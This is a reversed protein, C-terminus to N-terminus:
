PCEPANIRKCSSQFDNICVVLSIKITLLNEPLLVWTQKRRKRRLGESDSVLLRKQKNKGGELQNNGRGDSATEASYLLTPGQWNQAAESKRTSYLVKRRSEERHQVEHQKKHLHESVLWNGSKQDRASTQIRNDTINQTCWRPRRLLMHRRGPPPQLLQRQPLGQPCNRTGSPIWQATKWSPLLMSWQVASATFTLSHQGDAEKRPPKWVRSKRRSDM